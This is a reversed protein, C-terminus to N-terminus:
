KRSCVGYCGGGKKATAAEAEKLDAIRKYFTVADKLESLENLVHEIGSLRVELGRIKKNIGEIDITNHPSAPERPAQMKRVM